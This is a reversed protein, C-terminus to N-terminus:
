TVQLRLVLWAGLDLVTELKAVRSPVCCYGRWLSRLRRWKPFSLLSTIECVSHCHWVFYSTMLLKQNIAWFNGWCTYERLQKKWIDCLVLKSFKHSYWSLEFEQKLIMEEIRMVQTNASITISYLSVLSQESKPSPFFFILGILLSALQNPLTGWLYM